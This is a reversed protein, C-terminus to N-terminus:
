KIILSKMKKFDSLSPIFINVLKKEIFRVQVFYLFTFNVFYSILTAYAAGAIGYRPILLLNFVVTAVLAVINSKLCHLNMNNAGFFTTQIQSICTFIMAFLLIYFPTVSSAFEIGYLTSILPSGLGLLLILFLISVTFNIKSFIVFMNRRETDRGQSLYPFMVVAMTRSFLLMFQAVNVALSYYGLQEEGDYYSVMWIDLRYDFFNVVMGMFGVMTYGYFLKIDEKRIGSLDPRVKVLGIYSYIWLLNNLLLVAISIVLVSKINVEFPLDNRLFYLVGFFAVNFISNILTIRNIRRFHMKGKLFSVCMGNVLTISFASFLFLQFFVSSYSEPFFINLNKNTFFILAFSLIVSILITWMAMGALKEPKIKKNAMFYVIGLDAGFSLFLALLEMNAFMITHVGKGEPGLMRTVFVGSVIGLFITPFQIFFTQLLNQSLSRM